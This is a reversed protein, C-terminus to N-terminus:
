WPLAFPIARRTLVGLAVLLLFAVGPSVLRREAHYGVVLALGVDFLAMGQRKWGAQLCWGLLIGAVLMAVLRLARSWARPPVVRLVERPLEGGAESGRRWLRWRWVLGPLAFLALPLILALRPWGACLAVVACSLAAPRLAGWFFLDGAGSLPAALLDRVRAAEAGREESELRAVAGLLAPAMFLNTGFAVAHRRVAAARDAARGLAPVLAHAFGLGQMREAHWSADLFFSRLFVTLPLPRM